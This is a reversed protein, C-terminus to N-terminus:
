GQLDPKTNRGVAAVGAVGCCTGQASMLQVDVVVDDEGM